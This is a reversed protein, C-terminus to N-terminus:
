TSGAESLMAEEERAILISLLLLGYLSRCPKGSYVKESSISRYLTSLRMPREDRVARLHISWTTADLENVRLCRLTKVNAAGPEAELYAVARLRGVVRKVYSWARM